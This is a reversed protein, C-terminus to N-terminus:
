AISSSGAEGGPARARLRAIVERLGEKVEYLVMHREAQEFGLEVQPSEERREDLLTRRAGEITYRRAYLLDKIRLLLKVEDPRYMRNGARNKRPRLMSFQTEWYRLVHPKVDLMDSVESISRYLKTDPEGASKRTAV